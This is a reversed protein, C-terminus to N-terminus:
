GSSLTMLFGLALLPITNAFLHDWSGHLLPAFLIGSLGDRQLLRIGDDDLRGGGLQDIFEIVYLM